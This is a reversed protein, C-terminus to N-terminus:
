SAVQDATIAYKGYSVKTIEGTEVGRALYDNITDRGVTVDPDALLDKPGIGKPWAQTLLEAARERWGLPPKYGWNAPISWDLEAIIRQVELERQSPVTKDEGRDARVQALRADLAESTARTRELVETTSYRSTPITPPQPAPQTVSQHSNSGTNGEWGEWRKDWWDLDGKQMYPGETMPTGDVNRGNAAMLSIPDLDPVWGTVEHTAARAVERIQSPAIRYVRAVHPTEGSGHRIQASGEYPVDAPDIAYQHGFTNASEAKDKMRMGVITQCLAEMDQTVVDDTSRLGALVVRIGSARLEQMVQKILAKLEPYQSNRGTISAIEDVIAQIQPVLHEEGNEDIVTAGIPIKDDDHEAMLGQYNEKRAYGIRLLARFFAEAKQPSDAIVGLPPRNTEGDEWLKVWPRPYGAGTLDVTCGISDACSVIGATTVHLANTKGSGPEGIILMNRSRLYLDDREGNARVAFPAGVNISSAETPTAYKQDQALYNVTAIDMIWDRRRGNEPRYVEVTCGEPLDLDTSLRSTLRQLEDMGFKADLFKGQVSYGNKKEWYEIALVKVKADAGGLYQIREELTRALASRNQQADFTDAPAEESEQGGLGAIIGATIAGGSLVGIGVLWSTPSWSTNALMWASWSGVGTWCAAQYAVTAVPIKVRSLAARGLSGIVGAAGVGAAVYPASATVDALHDGLVHTASTLTVTTLCANVTGWATGHRGAWDFRWPKTQKTM